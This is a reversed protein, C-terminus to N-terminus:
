ALSAGTGSVGGVVIGPQITFSTAFPVATTWPGLPMQLTARPSTRGPAPLTSEITRQPFRQITAVLLPSIEVGYVLDITQRGGNEAFSDGPISSAFKFSFEVQGFDYHLYEIRGIWNSNGLM